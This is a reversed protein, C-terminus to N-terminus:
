NANPAGKYFDVVEVHCPWVESLPTGVESTRDTRQEVVAVCLDTPEGTCPEDQVGAFIGWRQGHEVEAFSLPTEDPHAPRAPSRPAKVGERMWRRFARAAQMRVQWPSPQSTM